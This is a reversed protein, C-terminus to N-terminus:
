IIQRDSVFDHLVHDQGWEKQVANRLLAAFLPEDPWKHAVQEVEFEEDPLDYEDASLDIPDLDPNVDFMGMQEEPADAASKKM